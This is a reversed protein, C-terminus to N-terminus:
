DEHSAKADADLTSAFEHAPLPPLEDLAKKAATQIQMLDAHRPDDGATAELLLECFGLVIALQNKLRHVNVPDINM